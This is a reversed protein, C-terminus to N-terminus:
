ESDTPYNESLISVKNKLLYEKRDLAEQESSYTDIYDDMNSFIKFGFLYLNYTGYIVWAEESRLDSRSYIDLDYSVYPSFREYENTNVLEVDYENAEDPIFQAEYVEADLVKYESFFIFGILLAGGIIVGITVLWKTLSGSSKSTGM